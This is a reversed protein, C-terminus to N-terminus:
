SVKVDLRRIKKLHRELTSSYNIDKYNPFILITELSSNLSKNAAALELEYQYDLNNRASRILFKAEIEKALDATLKNKNLLVVIKDENKLAKSVKQFRENIFSLNDKDPNYTVVVYLKDLLSLAKKIIALHGEHLPDFSGPYIGIKKM